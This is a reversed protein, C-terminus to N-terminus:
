SSEELVAAKRRRELLHFSRGAEHVFGTLLYGAAFFTEFVDRAKIRWDRALKPVATLLRDFDAPVEVLVTESRPNSSFDILQRAGNGVGRTKTVVEMQNLGLRYHPPPTGADVVANVRPSDVWWEVTIRDTALGGNTPDSLPGYRNRIYGTGVAGLRNFAIHADVGRLPDISWRLLPIGAHHASRREARRLARGIGRNRTDPSVGYLLTIGAPQGSSEAVLNVLVGCLRPPVTDTDYAGLLIGGSDRVTVMATTPIVLREWGGVIEIQLRECASFDDLTALPRIKIDM